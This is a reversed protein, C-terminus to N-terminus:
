LTVTSAAHGRRNKLPVITPAGESTAKGREPSLAIYTRGWWEEPAPMASCVLLLRVRGNVTTRPVQERAEQGAALM